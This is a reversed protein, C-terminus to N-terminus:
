TRRNHRRAATRCHAPPRCTLPSRVRLYEDNAPPHPLMRDGERQWRSVAGPPRDPPPAMPDRQHWPQWKAYDGV